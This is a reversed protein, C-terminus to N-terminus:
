GTYSPVSSLANRLHRATGRYTARTGHRLHYRGTNWVPKRVPKRARGAHATYCFHEPETLSGSTSISDHRRRSEKTHREGAPATGGRGPETGAAPWASGAATASEVVIWSFGRAPTGPASVCSSGRQASRLTRRWYSQGSCGIWRPRNAQHRFPPGSHRYLVAEIGYKRPFPQPGSNQIASIAAAHTTHM